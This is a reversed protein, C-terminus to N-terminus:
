CKTFAKKYPYGEKELTNLVYQMTTNLRAMENNIHDSKLIQAEKEKLKEFMKLAIDYFSNGCSTTPISRGIELLEDSFLMDAERKLQKILIDLFINVDKDGKKTNCPSCAVRINKPSFKDGGKSVPVIHDVTAKKREPILMGEYEIELHPRGCYSCVLDGNLEKEKTLYNRSFEIEESRFSLTEIYDVDQFRLEDKLLIYAARSKSSLNEDFYVIEIEKTRGSSSSKVIKQVEM